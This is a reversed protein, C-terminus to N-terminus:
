DQWLLRVRMHKHAADLVFPSFWFWVEPGYAAGDMRRWFVLSYLFGTHGTSGGDRMKWSNTSFFTCRYEMATWMDCTALIVSLCVARVIWALIRKRRSPSPAAKM